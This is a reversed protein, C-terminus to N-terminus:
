DLLRPSVMLGRLMDVPVDADYERMEWLLGTQYFVRAGQSYQVVLSEPGHSVDTIYPVVEPNGWGENM